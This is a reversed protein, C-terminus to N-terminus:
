SLRYTISELIQNVRNTEKMVKMELDNNVGKLRDVEMKLNQITAQLEYVSGGNNSPVRSGVESFKVQNREDMSTIDTALSLVVSERAKVEEDIRQSLQRDSEKLESAKELVDASARVQISVYSQSVMEKVPDIMMEEPTREGIVSVREDISQVITEVGRLKETISFTNGNVKSSLTRKSDIFEGELKQVANIIKKIVENLAQEKNEQQNVKSKDNKGDNFVVPM